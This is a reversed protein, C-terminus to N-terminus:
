RPLIWLIRPVSVDPRGQSFAGIEETVYRRMDAIQADTLDTVDIVFVDLGQKIHERISGRPSNRYFHESPPTIADYTIITGDARRGRWDFAEDSSRELQINEVMEIRLASNAELDRRLPQGGRMVPNGEPTLETGLAQWRDSNYDPHLTIDGAVIFENAERRTVTVGTIERVADDGSGSPLASLGGPGSREDIDFLFRATDDFRGSFLPLALLVGNGLAGGLDGKSIDQIIEVGTVIWDIPEFLITAALILLSYDPTNPDYQMQYARLLDDTREIGAISAQLEEQLERVASQHEPTADEWWDDLQNMREQAADIEQPTQPRLIEASLRSFETFGTLDEYQDALAIYQRRQRMYLLETLEELGMETRDERDLRVGSENLQSILYARVAGESQAPNSTNRGLEHVLWDHVDTTLDPHAGFSDQLERWLEIEDQYDGASRNPQPYGGQDVEETTDREEYRQELADMYRDLVQRATLGRTDGLDLGLYGSGADGTWVNIWDHAIAAPSHQDNMLWQMTLPSFDDYITVVGTRRLVERNWTWTTRVGSEDWDTEAFTYQMLATANMPLSDGFFEYEINQLDVLPQQSIDRQINRRRIDAEHREAEQAERRREAIRLEEDEATRSSSGQQQTGTTSSQGGGGTQTTPPPPTRGTVQQYATNM